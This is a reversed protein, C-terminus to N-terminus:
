KFVNSGPEYQNFIITIIIGCPYIQYDL